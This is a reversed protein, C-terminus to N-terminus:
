SASHIGCYSCGCCGRRVSPTQANARTKLVYPAVIATAAVVMFERRGIMKSNVQGKARGDADLVVIEGDFVCGAPLMRLLRDYKRFYHNNEAVDQRQGYRCPRSFRGV